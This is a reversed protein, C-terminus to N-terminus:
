TCSTRSHGLSKWMFCSLIFYCFFVLCKWREMGLCIFDRFVMAHLLPDSKPNWLRMKHPRNPQIAAIPSTNLESRAYHTTQKTPQVAPPMSSPPTPVLVGPAAPPSLAPTTGRPMNNPACPAPQNTPKAYNRTTDTDRATTVTHPLPGPSSLM